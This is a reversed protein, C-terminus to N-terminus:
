RRGVCPFLHHPLQRLVELLGERPLSPCRPYQRSERHPCVELRQVRRERLAQLQGFLRVQPLPVRGRRPLLDRRPLWQLLRLASFIGHDSTRVGRRGPRDLPVTFQGRSPTRGPRGPGGSLPARLQDQGLRQALTVRM